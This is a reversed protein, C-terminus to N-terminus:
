KVRNKELDVRTQGIVGNFLLDGDPMFQILAYAGNGRNDKGFGTRHVTEGTNWDMGTLLWGSDADYGNTFVINSPQSMSPVMSTSSVDARAWARRFVNQEADWTFREVGRPPTEVPGLALVDILRDSSGQEGINNVVFAGYGNVVVSQESQIFEPMPELGCTVQIKGAVRASQGPMTQADAPIEDRWFAVLKMRDAGDTIVVLKDPDDGFGMLTPTSGTGAGIKVNPPQHGTDYPASWAGHRESNSLGHPSWVFKYMRKDSAVYIGDHDDVAVSNTITEDAPLRIQQHKGKFTRDVVSISNNGLVILHGDRTMSLGAIRESKTLHTRMDLKRLVKLGAEPRREDHLGIALVDGAYTNYYLVNDRDVASYVGNAIRTWDLGYEETVAHKVQDLSTFPTGLAREHQEPTIVKIGPADIHALAEFRKGSVDVYTAGQSSVAWMYRSSPSALTAINVPGQTVHPAQKLDVKFTGRPAAYPMADTQAPDFHTIAYTKAALYSNPKPASPRPKTAEALVSATAVSTAAALVAAMKVVRKM